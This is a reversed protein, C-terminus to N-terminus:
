PPIRGEGPTARPARPTREAPGEPTNEPPGARDRVRGLPLRAAAPPPPPPRPGGATDYSQSEPNV